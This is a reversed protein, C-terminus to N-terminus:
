GPERNPRPTVRLRSIETTTYGILRLHEAQVDTTQYTARLASTSPADLFITVEERLGYFTIERRRERTARSGASPTTGRHRRAPQPVPSSRIPRPMTISCPMD